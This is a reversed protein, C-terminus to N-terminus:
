VKIEFYFKKEIGDEDTGIYLANKGSRTRVNMYGDFNKDSGLRVSPTGDQNYTIVSGSGSPHNGIM